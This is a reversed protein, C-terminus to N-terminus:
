DFFTAEATKRLLWEKDDPSLFDLGDRILAISDDYSEESVQFPWDSGWMLKQPGFADYVRRILPVLDQHPPRKAGLAYFASIKIKVLPYKSLACLAQVDQELIQGDIGVQALHDIVVPTEPFRECREAVMPLADPLMLFCMALRDQAGCVFMRDLGDSALCATGARGETDIRFGRIGHRALRCMEKDPDNRRWDVVAIGAFVGNFHRMVDLMYSNDCGYYSMQVLVSRNVSSQRASALLDEPHATRLHMEASTFPHSLPYRNFDDTWIHVHTDIFGDATNGVSLHSSSDPQSDPSSM